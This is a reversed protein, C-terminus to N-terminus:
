NHLGMSHNTNTHCFICSCKIEEKTDKIEKDRYIDSQLKHMLDRSHEGKGGM